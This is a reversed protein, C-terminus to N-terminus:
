RTVLELKGFVANGEIVLHPKSLDGGPSTWRSKGFGNASNGPSQVQGFATSMEFEVPTLSSVIVTGNGFITSVKARQDKDTIVVDTFDFTANGFTVSYDDHKADHKLTGNSFAISYSSNTFRIGFMVKFGLWIFFIGILIRVFPFSVNFAAKLIISVGILLVIVGWFVASSFFEMSRSKATM